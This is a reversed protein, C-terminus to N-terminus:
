RVIRGVRDWKISHTLNGFESFPIAPDWSWYILLAEGIINERPVFGWTRSDSSNNRNDGMMFYYDREVTYDKMPLNDITIKSDSTVGPMHGERMIFTKWSELNQTTLHIVDGKKPVYLPGYNDENWGCGKPFLRAESISPDMMSQGFVAEPPNEFVKGNVLLVKNIVQITDGPEGILRKVYNVIEKSTLDDRNGPYDFVVVDGRHPSRFGPLRLFPLRTDTFPISRPTSVGYVFKNVLLFDGVLLTQEMSGTPIRYAEIFFFKLVIAILLAFGIANFYERTRSKKKPKAKEDKEKESDM